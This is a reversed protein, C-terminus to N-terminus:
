EFILRGTYLREVDVLPPQNVSILNGTGLLEGTLELQPNVVMDNSGRHYVDVKQAILNEGEFRGAGSYFGISLENVTGSLYFFSINNAVIRIKNSNFQMRFDGVTFTGPANFDECLLSIEPYNLVGDSQIEYQTSSRIETINPASVYIKTAAYDRVYNCTNNDTLRLQNDVVEVNVDNILNEGTEVMVSYEADQKLILQVNRNVLIKHFSSVEFEQQVTTGTTQFCDSANESNCALLLFPLVIYILYKM